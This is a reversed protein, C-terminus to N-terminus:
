DFDYSIRWELSDIDEIDYDFVIDFFSNRLNGMRSSPEETNSKVRVTIVDDGYQEKITKICGDDLILVVFGSSFQNEFYVYRTDGIDCSVAVVESDMKDSLQKDNLHIYDDEDWENIPIPKDTYPKVYVVDSNSALKSAVVDSKGNKASNLAIIKM